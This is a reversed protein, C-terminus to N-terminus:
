FKGSGKLRALARSLAAQSRYYEQKSGQQRLREEAREKAALARKADIEEPREISATLLTVRDPRVEVCGDSVVVTQWDEGVPKYRAVGPSLATVMPEHGALVGMSGDIAPLVLQEAQGTFFAHEPSLLELYFSPM